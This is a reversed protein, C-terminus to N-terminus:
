RASGQVAAPVDALRSQLRPMENGTVVHVRREAAQSRFNEPVSAAPASTIFMKGCYAGGILGAYDVIDKIYDVSAERTKEGDEGATETRGHHRRGTNVDSIRDGTEWSCDDKGRLFRGRGMGTRKEARQSCVAM